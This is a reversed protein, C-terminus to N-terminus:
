APFPQGSSIKTNKFSVLSINNYINLTFLLCCQTQFNTLLKCEVGRCTQPLFAIDVPVTRSSAVAAKKDLRGQESAALDRGGSLRRFRRLYMNYLNAGLIDVEPNDSPLTYCAFIYLYRIRTKIPMKSASLLVDVLLIFLPMYTSKSLFSLAKSMHSMLELFAIFVKVECSHYIIQRHGTLLSIPKIRQCACWYFM